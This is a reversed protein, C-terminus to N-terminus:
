AAVWSEMESAWTAWLALNESRILYNLQWCEGKADRLLYQISTRQDQPDCREIIVRGAPEPSFVLGVVEKSVLRSSYQAEQALLTEAYRDLVYRDMRVFDNIGRLVVAEPRKGPITDESALLAGM